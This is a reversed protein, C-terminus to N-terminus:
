QQSDQKQLRKHIVALPAEDSSRRVLYLIVTNAMCIARQKESPGAAPITSAYIIIVDNGKM